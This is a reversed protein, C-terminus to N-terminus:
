SLSAGEATPKKAVPKTGGRFLRHFPEEFWYFVIISLVIMLPVYLAKGVLGWSDPAFHHYILYVPLQLIYLAYSARGLMVSLPHTLFGNLPSKEASTTLLLIIVGCIIAMPGSLWLDDTFILLGLMVALLAHMVMPAKPAYGRRFLVGLAVGYLFEPWRLLPYPIHTQWAYLVNKAEDIAPLRLVLMLACVAVTVGIVVPVSMKELLRITWPFTIYCVLEVSLTWAQMNWNSVVSGDSMSLPLWSQLLFFQPLDRALSHWPVFFAMLVLSLFFVPYVRAFRARTYRWHAGPSTFKGYYVYALVFGSMTFFYSIAVEANAMINNLWWPMLGLESMGAWGAHKVLVYLGFWFRPSTLADVHAPNSASSGPATV